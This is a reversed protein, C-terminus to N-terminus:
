EPPTQEVEYDEALADTERLVASMKVLLKRREIPDIAQSLSQKLAALERLLRNYSENTRM